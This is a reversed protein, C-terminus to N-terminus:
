KKISWSMCEKPCAIASDPMSCEAYKNKPDEPCAEKICFVHYTRLYCQQEKGDNRYSFDQSKNIVKEEYDELPNGYFCKCKDSSAKVDTIKQNKDGKCIRFLTSRYYSIASVDGRDQDMSLTDILRDAERKTIDKPCYSKLLPDGEKINKDKMIKEAKQLLGKLKKREKYLALTQPVNDIRNKLLIKNKQLAKLNNKYTWGYNKGDSILFWDKYQAEVLVLLNDPFSGIVKQLQECNPKCFSSDIKLPISRVNAPGDIISLKKVKKAGPIKVIGVIDKSNYKGQLLQSDIIEEGTQSGILLNRMSFNQDLKNKVIMFDIADDWKYQDPLAYEYYTQSKVTTVESAKIYYSSVLSLLVLCFM